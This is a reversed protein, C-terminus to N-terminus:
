TRLQHWANADAGSATARAAIKGNKYKSRAPPKCSSCGILPCLATDPCSFAEIAAQNLSESILYVPLVVEDTPPSLDM